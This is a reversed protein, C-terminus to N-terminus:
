GVDVKPSAKSAVSSLNLKARIAEAAVADTMDLAQVIDIKSAAQVASMLYPSLVPQSRNKSEGLWRAVAQRNAPAIAALRRKGLEIIYADQPLVVASLNSVTDAAGKTQRAIGVMSVDRALDLM